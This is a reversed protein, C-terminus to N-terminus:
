LSLRVNLDILEARSALEIFHGQVFLSALDGMGERYTTQASSSAAAATHDSDVQVHKPTDREQDMM